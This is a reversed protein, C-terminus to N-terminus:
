TRYILHQVKLLKKFFVSKFDEATVKKIIRGNPLKIGNVLGGEGQLKSLKVIIWFYNQSSQLQPWVQLDDDEGEEALNGNDKSQNLEDPLDEYDGNVACDGIFM